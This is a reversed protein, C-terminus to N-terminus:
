RLMGYRAKSQAVYIKEILSLRVTEPKVEVLVVVLLRQVIKCSDLTM